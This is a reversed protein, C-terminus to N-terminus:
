KSTSVAMFAHLFFINTLFPDYVSVYRSRVPFIACIVHSLLSHTCTVNLWVVAFVPPVYMFTVADSPYIIFFMSKMTVNLFGFLLNIAVTVGISLEM